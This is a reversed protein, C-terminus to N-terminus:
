RRSPRDSVYRALEPEDANATAGAKQVLAVPVALWVAASGRHVRGGLWEYGAAPGLMAAVRVDGMGMQGAIMAILLYATALVAAGQLGAVLRGFGGDLVASVAVLSILAVSSTAVIPTPLRRVAVDISSLLLGAQVVVLWAM